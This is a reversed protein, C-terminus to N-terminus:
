TKVRDWNKAHYQGENLFVEKDEGSLFVMRERKGMKDITTLFEIFMMVPGIHCDNWGRLDPHVHRYLKGPIM